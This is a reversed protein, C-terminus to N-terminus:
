RTRSSWIASSVLVRIPPAWSLTPDTWCTHLRRFWLPGQISGERGMGRSSLICTPSGPGLQILVGENTQMVLEWLSASPISVHPYPAQCLRALSPTPFHSM